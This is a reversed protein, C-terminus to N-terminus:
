IILIIERGQKTMYVNVSGQIINCRRDSLDVACGDTLDICVEFQNRYKNIYVNILNCNLDVILRYM